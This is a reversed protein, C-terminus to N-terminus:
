CTFPDPNRKELHTLNPNTPEARRRSRRASCELIARQGTHHLAQVLGPTIRWRSQIRVSENPTRNGDNAALSDWVNGPPARSTVPISVLFCGIHRTVVGM